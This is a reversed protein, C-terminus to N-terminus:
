SRPLDFARRTAEASQPNNMVVLDAASLAREMERKDRWAHWRTPYIKTEDLAWPDRLDLILPLGTQRKLPIGAEAATFPSMTVFIAEPKHDRILEQATRVAPAVWWRMPDGPELRRRWPSQM